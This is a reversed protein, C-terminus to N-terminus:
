RCVSEVHFRYHNNEFVRCVKENKNSIHCFLHKKRSQGFEIRGQNLRKIAGVKSLHTM